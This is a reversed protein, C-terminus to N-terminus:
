NQGELQRALEAQLDRTRAVGEDDGLKRDLDATSPLLWEAITIGEHNLVRRSVGRILGYSRVTVQGGSELTSREQATLDEVAIQRHGRVPVELTRYPWLILLRILDILTAPLMLWRLTVLDMLLLLATRCLIVGLNGVLSFPLILWLRLRYRASEHRIIYTEQMGSNTM